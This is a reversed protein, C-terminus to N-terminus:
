REGRRQMRVKSKAVFIYNDQGNHKNLSALTVRLGKLKLCTLYVRRLALYTKNKKEKM